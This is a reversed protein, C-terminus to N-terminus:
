DIECLRLARLPTKPKFIISKHTEQRGKRRQSLYFCLIERWPAFYAFANPILVFYVIFKEAGGADSRSIM